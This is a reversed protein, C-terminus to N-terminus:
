SLVRIGNNRGVTVKTRGWDVEVQNRMKFERPGPLQEVSTLIVGDMLNVALPLTQCFKLIENKTSSSLKQLIPNELIDDLGFYLAALYIDELRCPVDSTQRVDRFPLGHLYNLCERVAIGSLAGPLAISKSTLKYTESFLNSNHLLLSKLCSSQVIPVLPNKSPSNYYVIVYLAPSLINDPSLYKKHIKQTLDQSFHDNDVGPFKSNKKSSPISITLDSYKQRDFSSSTSKPSPRIARTSPIDRAEKKRSPPPSRSRPDLSRSGNRSRHVM